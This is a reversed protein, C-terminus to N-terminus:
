RNVKSTLVATELVSLRGDIKSLTNGFNDLSASFKTMQEKNTESISKIQDTLACERKQNDERQNQYVKWCFWGLVMVAVIPFGVTSVATVLADFKV